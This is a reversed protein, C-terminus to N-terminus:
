VRATGSKLRHWFLALTGAIFIRTNRGLLRREIGPFPLINTQKEFIRVPQPDKGAMQGDIRHAATATGEPPFRDTHSISSEGGLLGM